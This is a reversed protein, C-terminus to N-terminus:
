SIHYNFDNYKATLGTFEEGELGFGLFLVLHIMIMSGWPSGVLIFPIMFM